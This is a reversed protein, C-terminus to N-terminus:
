NVKLKKYYYRVCKQLNENEYFVVNILEWGHNGLYKLDNIEIEEPFGNEFDSEYFKLDKVYYDWKQYM